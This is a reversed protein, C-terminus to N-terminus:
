LEGLEKLTKEAKECVGQFNVKEGCVTVVAWNVKSYYKLAEVAKDYASKEIVHVVNKVSEDYPRCGVMADTDNVKDWNIRYRIWFERPKSVWCRRPERAYNM